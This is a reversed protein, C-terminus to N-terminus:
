YGAIAEAIDSARCGRLPFCSIISHNSPICARNGSASLELYVRFVHITTKVGTNATPTSQGERSSAISARRFNSSLLLLLLLLQAAEYQWPRPSKSKPCIWDNPHQLQLLILVFRLCIIIACGGILGHNGKLSGESAHNPTRWSVGM